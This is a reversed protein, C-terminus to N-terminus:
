TVHIVNIKATTLAKDWGAQNKFYVSTYGVHFPTGPCERKIIDQRANIIEKVCNSPFRSNYCPSNYTYLFIAGPCVNGASNRKYSQLMKGLALNLLLYESHGANAVPKNLYKDFGATAVNPHQNKCDSALVPIQTPWIPPKFRMIVNKPGKNQAWVNASAKIINRQGGKDVVTCLNQVDYVPDTAVSGQHLYLVGFQGQGPPYANRFNNRLTTLIAKEDGFVASSLSLILVLGIFRRIQM